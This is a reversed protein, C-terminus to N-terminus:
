KLSRKLDIKEFDRADTTEIRTQSSYYTIWASDRNRYHWSLSIPGAEISPKGENEQYTFFLISWVKKYKEFVKGEGAQEENQGNALFRYHYTVGKEIPKDFVIAAIGDKNRVVLASEKYIVPLSDKGFTVFVPVETDNVPEDGADAMGGFQLMLLAIAVTYRHSM